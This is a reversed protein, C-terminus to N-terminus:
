RRCRTIASCGRSYPNVAGTHRGCHPNYYSRGSRPPCPVRNAALAGYSIYYRMRRWFLSRRDFGGAKPDLEDNAGDGDWDGYLSMASPWELADTMLQLSAEEVQARVAVFTLFICLILLKPLSSFEM